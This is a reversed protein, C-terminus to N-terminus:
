TNRLESLKLRFDRNVLNRNKSLNLPPNLDKILIDELEDPNDNPLYHLILNKMMWGTLFSEDEANFKTKGTDPDKDRPIKNFGFLSGISKRLTSRGANNGVFHQRYDRTRLSKGAIGTYIVCSENYVMMEYDIGVDPLTSGERLCIIYNGPRNPLDNATNNLPDFFKFVDELSESDIIPNNNSNDVTNENQPEGHLKPNDDIVRIQGSKILYTLDEPQLDILGFDDRGYFEMKRMSRRISKQRSRNATIREEILKFLKEIEYATFTNRGKLIVEM